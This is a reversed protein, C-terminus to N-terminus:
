YKKGNSILSRTGSTREITTANNVLMDSFTLTKKIWSSDPCKSPTPVDMIDCGTLIWLGVFMKLPSFFM